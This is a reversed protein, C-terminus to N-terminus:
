VSICWINRSRQATYPPLRFQYHIFFLFVTTDLEWEGVWACVYIENASKSEANWEIHLICEHFLQHQDKLSHRTCQNCPENISLYSCFSSVIPILYDSWEIERLKRLSVFIINRFIQFFFIWGWFQMQCWLQFDFASWINEEMWMRMWVCLLSYFTSKRSEIIMNAYANLSVYM